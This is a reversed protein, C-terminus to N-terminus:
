SFVPISDRACPSTTAVSLVERILMSTSFQSYAFHKSVSAPFSILDGQTDERREPFSINSPSPSTVPPTLLTSVTLLAVTYGVAGAAFLRTASGKM